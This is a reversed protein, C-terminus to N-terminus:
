RLYTFINCECLLTYIDYRVKILAKHQYFIHFMTQAPMISPWMYQHIM